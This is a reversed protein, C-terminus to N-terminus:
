PSFSGESLAVPSALFVHLVSETVPSADGKAVYTWTWMAPDWTGDGQFGWKYCTENKCDDKSFM